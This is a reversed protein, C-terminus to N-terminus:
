VGSRTTIELMQAATLLYNFLAFEDYTGAFSRGAANNNGIILPIASQDTLTGSAAVTEGTYSYETLAGGSGKYIHIKKDGGHDYQWFLWVWASASLGTTTATVAGSTAARVAKLAALSSYFRLDTQNVDYNFFTGVGSEGASSPNVLMAYTTAVYAGYAGAPVTILSDAGDFLYADGGGLKGTQGISGAGATWAANFGTGLSGYNVVSAGAAENMRFWLMPLLAKMYAWYSSTGVIGARHARPM